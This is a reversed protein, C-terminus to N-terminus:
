VQFGRIFLQQFIRFLQMFAPEAPHHFRVYVREGFYDRHTLSSVGLDVVFIMKATKTGDSVRTDIALRGGGQAGLVRSPLEFTAAPVQEIVEASYIQNANASFKVEVSQTQQRVSGVEEQTLAARIRVPEDTEIIGLSDGYHLYSGLLEVDRTRRFVGTAPSRLQLHTEQQQLHAIEAKIADIDQVLLQAEARDEAWAKQYRADYERLLAQKTRLNANLQSNRLQVLIQDKEVSAGDAVLLEVVEGDAQAKVRANDPLWVVGESATYRPLPVLALFLLLVALSGGVWKLARSRVGALQKGKLLRQGYSLMPWLLQFFILWLALLLALTPFYSAAIHIIAVLVTLRYVFAALAYGSLFIGERRSSAPATLGTVGYLYRNVSYGLQQNARAALNPMDWADSLLHYGDFRMLPNGNFFLTSVSGIVMLNFLLDRLLGDEVQLWLLLALAAIFLEVAMGAASVMLRRSKTAFGTAATADVYPLPTGLIFVLGWEHVEGGWVKTFLGHGLEHVVKLLPYTFWLLLLNSPSLLHDLQGNTLEPWHQVATLVGFGVVLLWIVGMLPSALLRALPLLWNLFKDPDGLPIKWTLPNILLRQWRQKRQKQQRAFLEQTSPPMDCLLLDAVHLYQVLLILEERTPADDPSENFEPASAAALVQQLSNRGTMFSLLRYASTNLRHFRGNSKDQLVYWTEGKYQRRQFEAHHPLSPKLTAFQQWILDSM